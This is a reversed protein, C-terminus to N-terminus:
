KTAAHFYLTHTTYHTLPITYLYLNSWRASGSYSRAQNGQERRDDGTFFRRQCFAPSSADRTHLFFISDSRNRAQPSTAAQAYDWLSIDIERTMTPTVVPLWLEENFKANLEARDKSTTRINKVETKVNKGAFKVRCFADTGAKGVLAGADMVPLDEAEYITLVLYQVEQKLSAPMMVLHSIDGGMGLKQEAAIDEMEDHQAQKDGPGLVVISCKLYGQVTRETKGEEVATLAVWQRHLEQNKRCYVFSLDLLYSGIPDNRSLTDADMVQLSIVGSEVDDKDLDRFNMIFLEDYVASLTGKKITTNQKQGLCEIYVVPDSLGDDDKAALERVEIIHVQVQYDGSCIEINLVDAMLKQREEEHANKAEEQDTNTQHKGKDGEEEAADEEIESNKGKDDSSAGQMPSFLESSLASFMSKKSDPKTTNSDDSRTTEESAHDTANEVSLTSNKTNDSM